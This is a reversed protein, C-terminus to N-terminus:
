KGLIRVLLDILRLPKAVREPKVLRHSEALSFGSQKAAAHGIDPWLVAIKPWKGSKECPFWFM